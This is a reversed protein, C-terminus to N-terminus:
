GSLFTFTQQKFNNLKWGATKTLSHEMPHRKQQFSIRITELIQLRCNGIQDQEFLQTHHQQAMLLWLPPTRRPSFDM